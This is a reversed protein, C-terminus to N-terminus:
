HDLAQARLREVLAWTLSADAAARHRATVAIGEIECAIQLPARFGRLSEFLELACIWDATIPTLRHRACTAGLIRRDFDAWYAVVTRNRILRDLAEYIAPFAPSTRLDHDTLGHIRTCEPSVRSTPRVTQDLLVTGAGSIVAVEVIEADSGLGTTETDLVFWGEPSSLKPLLSRM